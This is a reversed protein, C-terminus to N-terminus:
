GAEAGGGAHGQDGRRAKRQPKKVVSYGAHRLAYLVDAACDAALEKDLRLTLAAAVVDVARTMAVTETIAATRRAALIMTKTPTMRDTYWTTAISNCYSKTIFM